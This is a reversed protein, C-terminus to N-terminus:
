FIIFLFRKIILLVIMGIFVKFDFIGFRTPIKDFLSLYPDVIKRIFRGIFSQNVSPLWSLFAYILLVYTYVDIVISVFNLIYYIIM